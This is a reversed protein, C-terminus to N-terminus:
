RHEDPNEKLPPMAFLSSFRYLDRLREPNTHVDGIVRCAGDVKWLWMGGTTDYDIAAVGGNRLEVVDTMQTMGFRATASFGRREDFWFRVIDGTRIERGDVDRFGTAAPEPTRRRLEAIFADFNM